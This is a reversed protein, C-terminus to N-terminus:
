RRQDRWQNMRKKYEEKKQGLFGVIEPKRNWHLSFTIGDERYREVFGRERDTLCWEPVSTAAVLWACKRDNMDEEELREAPLIRRSLEHCGDLLARLSPIPRLPVVPADTM